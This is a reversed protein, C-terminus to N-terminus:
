DNNEESGPTWTHGKTTNLQRNPDFSREGRPKFVGDNRLELKGDSNRVFNGSNQYKKRSEFDGNREGKDFSRSDRREGRDFSREKRDDKNFPRSDKRDFSRSERRDGKDFSREKREGRDFYRSEKRDGKDFSRERREGRDFSRSESREERDFSIDKGESKNFSDFSRKERREGSFDSSRERKFSGGKDSDFRDKDKFKTGKSRTENRRSTASRKDKFSREKRLKGKLYGDVEPMDVDLEDKDLERGESRFSKYSGEFIEYKRFECELGGNMMDIKLSPKLGIEDFCEEKYSLIWAEYGKFQHKLTSGIEKYLNLIDNSSIREGYPPNMVLVCNQPVTDKTYDQIPMATLDIYKSFGASKINERSIEIAKKSVDSGYIKNDFTREDSEDNYIEDFLDADYDAWKEFAFSKRYIGPPTNTAIMAAEILLTGSGCMPDIFNKSGDWGTKLIMGAALVENLPAENQDVRYGRRHLSEGSSDLSLTCVHGAIHLNLSLDANTLRVNPRKGTKDLFYDVIADKARYTVFKSHRFDDSFVVSDISFTNKESIFDEWKIKRIAEYVEDTNSANFTAIPKLIRLATRLRLNAKYLLSKDGIFSVVRIGQEVAEGGIAIVGHALVDELGQFTKAIMEFKESNVQLEM